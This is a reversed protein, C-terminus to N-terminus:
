EARLWSLTFAKGGPLPVLQQSSVKLGAEAALTSVEAATRLTIYGALQQLSVVGTNSVAPVGSVPEQTVLTCVGGAALLTRIKALLRPADVWELILAAHVLDFRHEPLAADLVDAHILTLREGLHAWLESAQALYAANVDVGVVEATIGPDVSAFDGGTTCGLIALCVPRVEGYVQAFIERLAATQGNAGMHADYDPAPIGAWPNKADM